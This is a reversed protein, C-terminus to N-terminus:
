VAVTTPILSKNLDPPYGIHIWPLEYRVGALFLDRVRRTLISALGADEPMGYQHFLRFIRDDSALITLNRLHDPELTAPPPHLFETVRIGDLKVVPHTDVVDTKPSLVMAVDPKATEFLTLVDSYAQPYAIVDGPLSIFNGSIYPEMTLYTDPIGRYCNPVFTVRVKNPKNKQVYDIVQEGMHGIAIKADVSGFARVLSELIHGLTPLGDIPLLCKQTHSFKEGMRSGYGGALILAKAEMM